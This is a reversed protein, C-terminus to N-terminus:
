NSSQNIWDLFKKKPVGNRIYLPLNSMSINTRPILNYVSWLLGNLFRTSKMALVQRSTELLKPYFGDRLSESIVSPLRSSFSNYVLIQLSWFDYVINPIWRLGTSVVVFWVWVLRFLVLVM